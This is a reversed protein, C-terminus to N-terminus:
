ALIGTNRLAKVVQLLTYGDLKHEDTLTTGVAGTLVASAVGVNQQVVPTANWFGLKQTTGTGIKMGTTTDTIINGASITLQSAQFPAFGSDDALRVQLETSSSSSRKLAPAASTVVDGIAFLGASTFSGRRLNNTWFSLAASSLLRLQFGNNSDSELVSTGATYAPNATWGDSFVNFFCGKAGNSTVSFRSRAATGSTTNEVSFGTVSNANNIIELQDNLIPASNGIIVRGAGTIKIIGSGAVQLNVLDGAFGSAANIALVTGSASGTFFGSTSGDFAGSGLSVLGYNATAVPATIFNTHGDAFLRIREIESTAFRIYGAERQWISFNVGDDLGLFVGDTLTTGTTNNIFQMRCNNGTTYLTFLRNSISTGISVNGNNLIRMAETAGNNGVLFIHDAGTAGVGTTTKYTLTQTTGTGGVILPSFLSTGFYGTRPRTASPQGIDYLNDTFLLNGTLTGGALPLYTLAANEITLYGSLDQDGTNTGSTNGLVVLQADTVYRYNLVDAIDGTDLVVTGTLGNVSDVAGGGGSVTSFQFGDETANVQLYKSANGAYSLASLDTLLQDLPQADINVTLTAM